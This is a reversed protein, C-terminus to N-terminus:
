NKGAALSTKRISNVVPPMTEASQSDEAGAETKGTKTAANPSYMNLIPRNNAFINEQAILELREFHNENIFLLDTRQAISALDPSGYYPYHEHPIPQGESNKQWIYLKIQQLHALAQLVCPHSWGADIRKDFIDYTIYGNVVVLDTAHRQLQQMIEDNMEGGQQAATQYQAFARVLATSAQEHLKLYDIFDQLLLQEQIIPKLIEVVASLKDSILKFAQERTIGFATYGCDGDGAVLHRNFSLEGITLQVAPITGNVLEKKQIQHLTENKTLQLFNSSSPSIKASDGFIISTSSLTEHPPPVSDEKDENKRLSPDNKVTASPLILQADGNDDVLIHYMDNSEEAQNTSPFWYASLELHKYGPLKRWICLYCNYLYAILLTINSGFFKGRRLCINLYLQYSEESSPDKFVDKPDKNNLPNVELSNSSSNQM